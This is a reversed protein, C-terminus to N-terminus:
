LKEKFGFKELQREYYSKRPQKKMVVPHRKPESAPQGANKSLSDLGPNGWRRAGSATTMANWANGAM